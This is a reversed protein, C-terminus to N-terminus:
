KIGLRLLVLHIDNSTIDLDLDVRYVPVDHKSYFVIRPKTLAAHNRLALDQYIGSELEFKQYEPYNDLKFDTPVKACGGLM